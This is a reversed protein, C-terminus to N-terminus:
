YPRVESPSVGFSRKFATAFNATSSYGAIYAAQAISVGQQELATRARQLAQRRAFEFVTTGHVQRFLRQLTGPSSGIEQALSALTLEGGGALIGEATALRRRDLASLHTELKAEDGEMRSLIAFAETILDLARSETYLQRLLGNLRPPHLIQGATALLAQSPPLALRSLPRSLLRNAQRHSAFLERGTAEVWEPDLSVNVKRMHMGRRSRREFLAPEANALIVAEATGDGGPDQVAMGGLRADVRGHLFVHVTVCPSQLGQTSLDHLEVADSCHMTLGPRLRVLRFDGDLVPGSEPAGEIRYTSTESWTADLDRRDVLRHDSGDVPM